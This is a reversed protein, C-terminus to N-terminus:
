PSSQERLFQDAPARVWQEIDADGPFRGPLPCSSIWHHVM